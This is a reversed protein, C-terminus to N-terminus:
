ATRSDVVVKYAIAVLGTAVALGGALFALVGAVFMMGLTDSNFAFGAVTVLLWGGFVVGYLAVMSDETAYRLAARASVTQM